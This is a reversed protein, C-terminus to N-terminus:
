RDTEQLIARVALGFMTIKVAQTEPKGNDYPTLCKSLGTYIGPERTVAHHNTAALELLDRQAKTLGAAITAADTM